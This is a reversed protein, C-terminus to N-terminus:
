RNYERERHARKSTKRIERYVKETIYFKSSIKKYITSFGLDNQKETIFRSVIKWEDSDLKLTPKATSEETLDFFEELTPKAAEKRTKDNKSKKSSANQENEILFAKNYGREIALLRKSLSPHTSYTDDDESSVLKIAAQAEQLSAGLKCLVFGAYEDAEIEMNRSEELNPAEAQETAYVVLDLTHGNVHHGIEHALIVLDSWSSTKNTIEKMFERDYLIYRTGKYTTALCNSIDDCEMLVFRKSMGTVNLIMNLAEEAETNSSFNNGKYSNCLDKADLKSGYVQGFGIMPFCLLILLLKKM